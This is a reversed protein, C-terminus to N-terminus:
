KLYDSIIKGQLDTPLELFHELYSNLKSTYDHTWLSQKKFARKQKVLKTMYFLQNAIQRKNEKIKDEILKVTEIYDRKRSIGLDEDKYGGAHIGTEEVARRMAHIALRLVRANPDAGAELLLKVIIPLGAIASNMLPTIWPDGFWGTGSSKNIDAGYELLLRIIEIQIPLKYLNSSAEVLALNGDKNPVNPNVGEEELLARVMYIDGHEAAYVLQDNDSNSWWCGLEDSDSSSSGTRNILRYSLFPDWSSHM